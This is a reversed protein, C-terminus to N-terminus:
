NSRVMYDVDIRNAISQDDFHSRAEDCLSVSRSYLQKHLRREDSCDGVEGYFFNGVQPMASRLENLLQRGGSVM